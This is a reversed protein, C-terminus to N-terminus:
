PENKLLRVLVFSRGQRIFEFEVKRGARLRDLLRRDYVVFALGLAPLKLEEIPNTDITVRSLEHDVAVVTGSGKLTERSQGFALCAVFFLALAAYRM